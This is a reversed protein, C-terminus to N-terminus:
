KFIEEAKAVSRELEEIAEIVHNEAGPRMPLSLYGRLAMRAAELIMKFVEERCDCAHHHTGKPKCTM